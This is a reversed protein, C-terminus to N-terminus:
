PINVSFVKSYNFKNQPNNTQGGVRIYFTGSPLNKLTDTFQMSAIQQYTYGSLNHSVNYNNVSSSVTPLSAAITMCKVINYSIQLPKSLIYNVVVNNSVVLPTSANISMFPTVTFNVTTLGKIDVAVTDPSLFPGNIPIVNYKDAFLQTNEFSGDAKGDFTIPIVPNYGFEILSIQFGNPEETQIGANTTNDIVTGIIGVNPAPYNDIQSCSFVATLLLLALILKTLKM